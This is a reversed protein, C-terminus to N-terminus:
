TLSTLAFCINSCTKVHIPFCRTPLMWSSTDCLTIKSPEMMSSTKRILVRHARSDRLCHARPPRAKLEGFFAYDVNLVAMGEREGPCIRWM